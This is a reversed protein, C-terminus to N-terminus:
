FHLSTYILLSTTLGLISLTVVVLIVVLSVFTVSVIGVDLPMNPLQALM